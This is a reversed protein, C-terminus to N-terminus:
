LRYMYKQLTKLQVFIGSTITPHSIILKTSDIMQYEICAWPIILVNSLGMLNSKQEFGFPKESKTTALAQFQVM